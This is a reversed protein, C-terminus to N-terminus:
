IIRCYCIWLLVYQGILHPFWSWSCPIGWSYSWPFSTDFRLRFQDRCCSRRLVERVRLYFPSRTSLASRIATQYSLWFLPLLVQLLKSLKSSCCLLPLAPWGVEKCASRGHQSCWPTAAWPSFNGSTCAPFKWDPFWEWSSGWGPASQKIM